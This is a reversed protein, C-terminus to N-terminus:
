AFLVLSVTLLSMGTGILWRSGIRDSYRGAQPAILIILLTMPLFLAGTQIPSYGLIRQFFLSNFFFIGFMALAVLLMALNAGSFTSNRFLTLDLMPIRQRHELAVFVVLAVVALGFLVL